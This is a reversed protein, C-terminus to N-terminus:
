RKEWKWDLENLIIMKNLDYNQIFPYGDINASNGYKCQMGECVGMLVCVVPRVPYILCRRAKDDRFPCTSSHASEQAKVRISPRDKIYDQIRQLEDPMVPIVGCCEGCNKCGRHAPINLPIM